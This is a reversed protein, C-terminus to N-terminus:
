PRTPTARSASAAPSMRAAPLLSSPWSPSGSASARSPVPADPNHERQYEEAKCLNRLDRYLTEEDSAMNYVDGLDSTIRYYADLLKRVNILAALWKTRVRWYELDEGEEDGERPLIAEVLQDIQKRGAPTLADLGELFNLKECKLNPDPDTSFYFVLGHLGERTLRAYMDGKVDIIFTSYGGRNLQWRWRVILETKGSNQPAVVLTGNYAILANTRYRSLYLLPPPQGALAPKHDFAFVGLPLVKDDGKAKILDKVEDLSACGSYDLLRGSYAAVLEEGPGLVPNHLTPGPGRLQESPAERLQRRVAAEFESMWTPLYNSVELTVTGDAAVAIRVEFRLPLRESLLGGVTALWGENRSYTREIKAQIRGTAFDPGKGREFQDYALCRDIARLIATRPYDLRIMVTQWQRPADQQFSQVFQRRQDLDPICQGATRELHELLKDM